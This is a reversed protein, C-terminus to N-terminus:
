HKNGWLASGNTVVQLNRCIKQSAYSVFFHARLHVLADAARRMLRGESTKRMQTEFVSAQRGGNTSHQLCLLLQPLREPDVRRVRRCSSLVWHRRVVPWGSGSRAPALADYAVAYQSSILVAAGASPGDM